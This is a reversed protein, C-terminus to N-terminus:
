EVKDRLRWLDEATRETSSDLTPLDDEDIMGDLEDPILNTNSNERDTIEYLLARHM